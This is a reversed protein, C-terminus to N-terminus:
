KFGDRYREVQKIRKNIIERCESCPEKLKNKLCDIEVNSADIEDYQDQPLSAGIGRGASQGVCIMPDFITSTIIHRIEHQVACDVIGCKKQEPSFANPPIQPVQGGHGDCVHTILGPDPSFTGYVGRGQLGWPDVLTVPGNYVYEYFNTGGDFRIPDESIFRGINSDYYRDRYYHIGSESDFERGTYRFANAITGTSATLNGFSDYTYTNSIAGISNSLTSIAGIGDQEYYNTVGARLVSLPQDV